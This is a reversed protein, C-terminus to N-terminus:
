ATVWAVFQQRLEDHRWSAVMAEFAEKTPRGGLLDSVEAFTKGTQAQKWLLRAATAATTTESMDM